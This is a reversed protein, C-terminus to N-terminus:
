LMLVKPALLWELVGNSATAGRLDVRALGGKKFDIAAGGVLRGITASMDPEHGVLMLARASARGRLIDGLAALDFNSGLRADEYLSNRLGLRDAVIEATQRARVLPSTLIADLALDLAAIGKAERKMRDIGEGTLPREFESGSWHAPDYAVGHRLFYLKM